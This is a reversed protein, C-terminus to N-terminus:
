WMRVKIVTNSAMDIFEVVGNERVCVSMSGDTTGAISVVSAPQWPLFKLRHLAVMADTEHGGSGESKKKRVTDNMPTGGGTNEVQSQPQEQQSVQEQAAHASAHKRKQGMTPLTPSDDTM